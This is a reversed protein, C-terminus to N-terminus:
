IDKDVCASVLQLFAYSASVRDLILDKLQKPPIYQVIARAFGLAEENSLDNDSLDLVRLTDANNKLFSVFYKLAIKSGPFLKGHSFDGKEQKTETDFFWVAEKVCTAFLMATIQLEAPFAKLFDSMPYIQLLHELEVLTVEGLYNALAAFKGKCVVKCQVQAM